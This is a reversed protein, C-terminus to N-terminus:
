KGAIALNDVLLSPIRLGGRTYTDAGVVLRAYIDILNGAVTIETVPYALAGGEFWHGSCGVSWDGTNANLSPGFMATILVGSGADAMLGALDKEGPELTLNTASVGPPGALGRSAHGTTELGLQRASSANLLWTTLVGDAILDRAQNAVGEDDFPQSALGRPRHPDDRLTVGAPFLREGLKDKLFSVGRAVAPGAIAGLLPGILAGALRNEFIVPAACSELKRAGLSAVARRAAEAGIVAPDPLDAVWRSSAADYGQEMESGEGAIAQASLSSATGRQAGAFGDSTVFRWASSTWSASAGNSNSVNPTALLAAEAELARQELREASPEDPDFLDLDAHDGRALLSTPPLGAYPDEAALRAMAVAREVLKRCGEPSVDSGSVSAHRRGILVRLGLDQSEEREVEELAGQRVGVSLSQREAFVAEASQAGAALASKIVQDLADINM